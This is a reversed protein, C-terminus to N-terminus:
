VDNWFDDDPACSGDVADCFAEDIRDIRFITGYTDNKVNLRDAVPKKPNGGFEFLTGIGIVSDPDEIISMTTRDFLVEDLEYFELFEVDYGWENMEFEEDSIIEPVFHQPHLQPIDPDIVLDEAKPMEPDDDTAPERLIEDLDGDGSIDGRYTGMSQIADREIELYNEEERDQEYQTEAQVKQGQRLGIFFGFGFGTGVWLLVKMWTKM